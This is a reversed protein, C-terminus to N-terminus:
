CMLVHDFYNLLKKKCFNLEILKKWTNFWSFFNQRFLSKKKHTFSILQDKCSLFFFLQAPIIKVLEQNKKKKNIQRHLVFFRYIKPWTHFLTFFFSFFTVDRLCCKSRYWLIFCYPSWEYLTCVERQSQHWRFRVDHPQEQETRVSLGEGARDPGRGLCM